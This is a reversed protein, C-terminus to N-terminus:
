GNATPKHGRDPNLVGRLVPFLDTAILGRQGGSAALDGAVAHAYAAGAASRHLVGPYQAVLGAILGTLVDGMGASAMGANGRDVVYPTEGACAILTCRGKLVAVGGYRDVLGSVASLRDSQVAATGTDLLRAAEGPHPTLIWDDRHVPDGALLNLADADLVKPQACELIRAFLAKAWDDQGLGPGLAIVSAREILPELDNVTEIGRCMLEPRYAMIAGVTDPRSAVSVLGAGARLAGEGALRAAGGMGKNGGIVLVHGFRGKHATAERPPMLDRLDHPGFIRMTPAIEDVAAPPIELDHLTVTGSHDPGAGLFFGQKLGVFTSTITANVAAGMIEGTTTNLGSPVDVAMVPTSTESLAQVASLYDGGLPRDLGTGLIADVILDAEGFAGADFGVVAPVGERDLARYDRWAQEADGTLRDPDSLAVVTVDLHAAHALRAIVYGDGANNGAGCIVLWRRADPSFERADTFAALGARTMLTYGPVGLEEIAIRDMERVRVPSYIRNKITSM